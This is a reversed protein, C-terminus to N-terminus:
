NNLREGVERMHANFRDLDYGCETMIQGRSWRVFELPNDEIKSITKM